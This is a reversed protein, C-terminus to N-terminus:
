MNATIVNNNINSMPHPNVFERGANEEKKKAEEAQAQKKKKGLELTTTKPAGFQEYSSRISKVYRGIMTTENYRGYVFLFGALICVLVVVLLISIVTSLTSGSAQVSEEDSIPEPKAVSEDTSHRWEM